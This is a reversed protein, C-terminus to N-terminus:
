EGRTGNPQHFEDSSEPRLESLLVISGDDRTTYFEFSQTPFATKLFAMVEPVSQGSLDRPGVSFIIRKPAVMKVFATVWLKDEDTKPIWSHHPWKLTDAHFTIVKHENARVFGEFEDM